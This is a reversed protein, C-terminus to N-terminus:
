EDQLREDKDFYLYAAQPFVVAIVLFLHLVLRAEIALYLSLTFLLGASGVIGWFGFTFSKLRIWQFYENNLPIALSLKKQMYRSLLVLKVLYFGWMCVGLLSLVTTLVAMWKVGDGHFYSVLYPLQWIAFGLLGNKMFLRRNTELQTVESSM